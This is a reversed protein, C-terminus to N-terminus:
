KCHSYNYPRLHLTVITGDSTEFNIVENVTGHENLIPSSRTLYKTDTKSNTINNITSVGYIVLGLKLLKVAHGASGPCQCPTCRCNICDSLSM